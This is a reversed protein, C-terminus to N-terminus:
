FKFRFGIMPDATSTHLYGNALGDSVKSFMVGAYTDFRNTWRYDTMLSYVDETGSCTGAAATSCHVVAYSNQDYHYLAGTLDWQPSISYKLGGWSIELTKATPFATNNVVIFYYGGLGSFGAEIPLTPNEYRLHEYGLFAKLPGTTYSGLLQYATNDSITAAL